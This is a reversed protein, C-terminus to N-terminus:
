KILSEKKLKVNNNITMMQKIRFYFGIISTYIRLELSILHVTRGALLSLSTM